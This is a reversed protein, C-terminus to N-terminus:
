CTSETKDVDHKATSQKKACYLMASLEGRREELIVIRRRLAGIIDKQHAITNKLDKIEIYQMFIVSFLLVFSLLLIVIIM